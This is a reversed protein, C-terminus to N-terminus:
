AGLESNLMRIEQRIRDLFRTKQTGRINKMKVYKRAIWILHHATKSSLKMKSDHFVGDAFGLFETVEDRISAPRYRKTSDVKATRFGDRHKGRLFGVVREALSNKKSDTASASTAASKADNM